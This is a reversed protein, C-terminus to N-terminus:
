STGAPVDASKCPHPKGTMHCLVSYVPQSEEVLVLEMADQAIIDENVRARGRALSAGLSAGGRSSAGSARGGFIANRVM